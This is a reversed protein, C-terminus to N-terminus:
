STQKYSHLNKVSACGWFVAGVTHPRKGAGESAVPAPAEAIHFELRYCKKV